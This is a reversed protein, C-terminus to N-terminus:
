LVTSEPSGRRAHRHSAAYLRGLARAAAVDRRRLPSKLRGTNQGFRGFDSPAVSTAGVSRGAARWDVMVWGGWVGGVLATLRAVTEEDLAASGKGVSGGHVARVASEQAHRDAELGLFALVRELEHGPDAVFDAYVVELWRSRLMAQLADYAHEVGCQWPIACVEDLPHAALLQNM